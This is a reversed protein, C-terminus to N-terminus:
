AVHAKRRAAEVVAVVALSLYASLILYPVMLVLVEAPAHVPALAPVPVPVPAQVLALVFARVPARVQVLVQAQVLAEKLVMLASEVM